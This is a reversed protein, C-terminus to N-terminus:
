RLVGDVLVPAATSVNIRVALDVDASHGNEVLERGSGCGRVAAPVDTTRFATAALRAEPSATGTLAALVAGAGLYDEVCPRLPGFERPGSHLIDLGWREGGPIVGITKGLEQARRAVATANRLCAALVHAGTEAALFCLNSGNPSPLEVLGSEGALSAPRLTKGSSPKWRSPRVQGGNGVVLDVSTTFSLVDVIVLVDCGRLADVGEPGWELRLQYGEQSFVGM